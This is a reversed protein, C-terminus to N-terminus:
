TTDMFQWKICTKVLLMKFILSYKGSKLPYCEIKKYENVPSRLHPGTVIQISKQPSPAFCQLLIFVACMCYFTINSVTSM